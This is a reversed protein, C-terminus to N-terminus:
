ILEKRIYEARKINEEKEDFEEKLITRLTNPEINIMLTQIKDLSLDSIVNTSVGLRVNSLLKIAEDNDITRANKLIGYSRYITDELTIGSNLLAERAKREQEIISTVVLKVNYIIDEDSVGLTKQNSIQFINGTSDSNEGYLGRVSIGIEMAQDFLKNLLKMKSLAPLHLMVSVRMASGINTPCSILYGYKDSKAFKIKENIDDTFQCIKDYCKDINFGSEFAQIRLHDEENIMAVITNDANAVIACNDNGVFEKSILHQEKLANQTVEDIDRMMFLKYEDKDIARDVLTIINNLEKSNLIHPFKYGEISRAFRIRSSIVVDSDKSINNFWM